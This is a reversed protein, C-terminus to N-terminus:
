NKSTRAPSMDPMWKRANLFREEIDLESMGLDRLQLRIEAESCGSNPELGAEVWSATTAGSADNKVSISFWEKQSTRIGVVFINESAM